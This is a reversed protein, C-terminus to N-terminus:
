ELSLSASSNIQWMLQTVHVELQQDHITKQLCCSTLSLANEVLKEAVEHRKWPIFFEGSYLTASFKLWFRLQQRRTVCELAACLIRMTTSAHRPNAHVKWGCLQQMVFLFVANAVGVGTTRVDNV